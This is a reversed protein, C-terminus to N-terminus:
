KGESFKHKSTPFKGVIVDRYKDRDFGIFDIYCRRSIPNVTSVNDPYFYKKQIWFGVFYIEDDTLNINKNPDDWIIVNGKLYKKFKTNLEQLTTTNNM